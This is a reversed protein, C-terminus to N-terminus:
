KVTILIKGKAQGEESYIQAEGVEQLLYTRDIVPEIKRNEIWYSLTALDRDSQHVIVLRAKNDTSSVM